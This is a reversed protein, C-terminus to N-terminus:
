IRDLADIWLVLQKVTAEDLGDGEPASLELTPIKKAAFNKLTNKTARLRSSGARPLIVFQQRKGVDNEPPALGLGSDIAIGARIIDKLKLAALLGFEGGEQEGLIVVRQPDIPYKAMLQEILGKVLPGDAGSWSGDALLGALILGREECASRWLKLQEAEGTRGEPHLWFVLGYQKPQSTEPVYLWYKRGETGPIQEDLRGTRAPVKGPEARPGLDPTIDLPVASSLATLELSLEETAGGARRVTAKTQTGVRLKEVLSTLQTPSTVDQGNLKEIADGVTLKAKAAPSDPFVHRLTVGKADKVVTRSPLVGLMPYELPALEAVLTLSFPLEKDDRKVILKLESGAALPGLITKLQPISAIPTGNAQTILDGPKLGAKEAPSNPRVEGALAPGSVPGKDAFMVGMRGPRITEGKRLTDLQLLIEELPVAFGIGADYWEVGAAEDDGQPSMPVLIGICRGQLDILPGGYNAPSIKADTQVAKGWIRNLASLIGVSLNPFSVDYTRGLAITWQGVQLEKRPAPVLPTLGTQKIKILTVQRVLDSAVVDAPFKRGDSLTVIISSPKSAFNFSSTIIEGDASVVVGTTPGTGAILEGVVDLGGITQIQVISPDAIATAAKFAEEELAEVDPAQALLPTVLGGLLTVCLLWRTLLSRRSFGHRHCMSILDNVLPGKM